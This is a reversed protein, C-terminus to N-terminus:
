RTLKSLDWHYIKSFIFFLLPQFLFLTSYMEWSFDPARTDMWIASTQFAQWNNTLIVAAFINNIAHYGIALELGEDMFTILGLFMGTWLYFLLAGDGIKDVEPNGFHMLAFLISTIFIVVIPKKIWHFAKFLYSRFILEECTTQLPLLFLSILLLSWFQTGDFNWKIESETFLLICQMIGLMGGWLSFSVLIRKWDINIRATFFSLVDSKHIFRFALYLMGLCVIFPILLLTLLYNQGLVDAMNGQSLESIEGSNIKDLLAIFLPIQGIGIFAAVVLLLTVLITWPEFNGKQPWTEFVRM